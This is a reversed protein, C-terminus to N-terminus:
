FEEHIREPNNFVHRVIDQISKRAALNDTDNNGVSDTNQTKEEESINNNEEEDEQGCYIKMEKSNLLASIEVAMKVVDTEQLFLNGESKEKQM